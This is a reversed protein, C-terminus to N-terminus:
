SQAQRLILPMNIAKLSFSRCRAIISRQMLSTTMVMDTGHQTPNIQKRNEVRCKPSCTQPDDEQAILFLVGRQPCYAKLKQIWNSTKM